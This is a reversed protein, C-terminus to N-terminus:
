YSVMQISSGKMGKQIVIKKDIRDKLERVHSIIGVLRNGQTLYYLASVAQELSESDLSGFGEDIFMTDIQIGGAFNQIVDSLGLALSLSAKFSEGGSLSKVTRVKGTYNDLVDLELGTQTRLNEAKEKRIMEYRGNTMMNLRQNAKSIIQNFYSAQVYQEFALKQKGVLEGNATKSLDEIVLLKKELSELDKIMKSIAHVIPKNRDISQYLKQRQQEIEIKENELFIKKSELISLEKKEKEKTEQELHIIDNKTQKYEDYYIETEKQIAQLIRQELLVSEYEDESEFGWHKWEKEFLKKKEKLSIDKVILRAENKELVAKKKEIETKEVEYSEQANKLNQKKDNLNKTKKVIEKEAEEKSQFLLGNQAQAEEGIKMGLSREILTQEQTLEDLAEMVSSIEEGIKEMNSSIDKKEIILQKLEKQKQQVTIKKQEIKELKEQILQELQSIKKVEQINEFFKVTQEKLLKHITEIQIKKNNARQSAEKQKKDLEEKRQKLQEIEFEQMVCKSISAKKPHECSGCVPCPQGQELNQALIGAQEQLFLKYQQGYERNAAEYSESYTEFEKQLSKYENSQMKITQISDLFGQLVKIQELAKEYKNKWEVSESEVTQLQEIKKNGNAQRTILLQKNEKLMSIKRTVTSIKENLNKIEKRLSELKDYQALTESLVSIESSLSEIDSEQQKCLALQEEKQKLVRIKATIIDNLEQNEEKLQKFEKKEQNYSQQLPRIYYVANKNQELLFTKQQMSEEEQQLQFFKNKLAELQEFSQNDRQAESYERITKAIKESVDELKKGMEIRKNEEKQLAQILLNLVQQFRHQNYEKQYELIIEYEEEDNMCYIMQIYQQINKQLDTYQLKLKKEKEKLNYQIKLYYDTNFVKRFIEAREKSDALLLKLFEGQAIMVIQKFQKYDIGLIKIIESTVYTNGTIVTDNPLKLVADAAKVTTGKKDKKLRNYKPNRSVEYLENKHSFKLVVYTEMMPQAFDSRMTDTTRVYGSTEGYLAFAIADFITTKGAGTDGTILFLGKEGLEYFPIEVKEGYPGFASMTLFIPKM